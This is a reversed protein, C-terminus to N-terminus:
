GRGPVLKVGHLSLFRLMRQWLDVQINPGGFSHTKGPYVAMEFPTRSEQMRAMFETSNQFLVNDDSLGHVLLLPDAIKAADHLADSRDYDVRGTRPDGMYHESYHTDYLDWRTVPAGAIGAAFAHPAAELLKLTMYGGYSWGHVVVKSPDVGPQRKLWALGALQDAVEVSGLAHYAPKQFATGRGEQGRNGVAFVIFGQRVLYQDLPSVFGQQVDQAQPGGYVRFFVPAKRGRALKPRIIRYDLMTRGDAAPLRGFEPRADGALYPAYPHDGAVRNEEVWALRKGSGDALWVQPPQGPGSSTVLALRGTKDMKVANNTGTRTLQVPQAGPTLYDLAFLQKEYSRGRNATFYLRHGAEDIAAVSDVVWEGSTLVQTQGNQWRYLHRFGSRESSFVLSGDKLPKLDDSLNIWTDSTDSFLLTSRGTAADVRLYDLRKQDRSERQVILASSDPLWDVRAVYIDKNPGLDAQVRGSGDPNMLYLDVIANATGARPYRQQVTTTKDAGIATRTTLEVPSEDVRAVAIRRDDPAWWHGRFRQMEEQAIFEALGWSLTDSGDPSVQKEQGTSLDLVHLAQDRVFSVYRGRESVTADLEPAKTSTLRRVSGDLAALYIDGDLPVVLHQGDPAWDYAVIGKLNGIRARERQMREEETLAAGTGLKQSDVLMRAQGTAPDIAWLDYRELDDPRNRLVTVLRGDPSLKPLRPVKGTLAPSAFVRELTLRAPTAALAPITAAIALAAALALRSVTM